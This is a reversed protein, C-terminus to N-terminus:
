PKRLPPIVSDPKLTAQQEPTLARAPVGGISLPDTRAREAETATKMREIMARQAVIADSENSKATNTSM